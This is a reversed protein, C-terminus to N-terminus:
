EDEDEEDDALVSTDGGKGDSDQQAPTPLASSQVSAQVELFDKLNQIAADLNDELNESFKQFFFLPLYSVLFLIIGAVTTYVATSLALAVGKTDESALSKFILSIGVVTGLLGLTGAVNAIVTLVDLFQRSRQVSADACMRAKREAIALSVRPYERVMEHLVSVVMDRSDATAALAETQRWPERMVKGIVEHRRRGTWLYDLWFWGRELALALAVFSLFVLPLMWVMGGDVIYPYFM